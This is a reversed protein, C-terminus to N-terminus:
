SAEWDACAPWGARCDTGPGSTIPVLDCKPYPRAHGGVQVRHACTGCTEGSEALARDRLPHIGIAIRQTAKERRKLNQRASASLGAYPDPPPSQPQYAGDFLDSM